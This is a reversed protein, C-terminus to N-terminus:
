VSQAVYIARKSILKYQNVLAKVEDLSSDYIDTPVSVIFENQAANLLVENALVPVNDLESINDESITIPIRAGDETVAYMWEGSREMSIIEITGMTSKFRDNLCARLHCVQGNHTLRYLHENRKKGFRKYLADVPSVAARLLGFLVPRRLFTPLLLVILRNYDIKFEM